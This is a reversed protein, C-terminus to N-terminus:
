FSHSKIRRHGLGLRHHLEPAVLFLLQTLPAAIWLLVFTALFWGSVHLSM